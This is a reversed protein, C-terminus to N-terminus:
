TSRLNDLAEKGDDTLWAGHISTGHDTWGLFDALYAILMFADDNDIEADLIPEQAAVSLYALMLADVRETDGCACWGLEHAVLSGEVMERADRECGSCSGDSTRATELKANKIYWRAGLLRGVFPGDTVREITTLEGETNTHRFLVESM